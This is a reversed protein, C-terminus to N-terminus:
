IYYSNMRQCFHKYFNRRSTNITIQKQSIFDIKNFFTLTIHLICKCIFDYTFLYEAKEYKKKLKVWNNQFTNTYKVKFEEGVKLSLSSALDFIWNTVLFNFISTGLPSTFCVMYEFFFVFLCVFKM